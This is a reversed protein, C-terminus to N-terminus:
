KFSLHHQELTIGDYDRDFLVVGAKDLGARSRM